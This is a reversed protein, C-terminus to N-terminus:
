AQSPPQGRGAIHRIMPSKPQETPYQVYLTPSCLWARGRIITIIQQMHKKWMSAELLVALRVLSESAEQETSPRGNEEEVRSPGRM